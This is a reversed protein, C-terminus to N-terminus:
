HMACSSGYAGMLSPMDLVLAIQGDGTITAGSFGPVANLIKSLPKIVVEEQGIIQDVVLCIHDSGMQIVLVKHEIKPGDFNGTRVLWPYLYFLPLTQDRVRIVHQGDVVNIQDLAMNFTEYVNNLPLAFQQSSLQIMLTPLIALTLPLYITIVSGEGLKSDIEINGNLENIRTKVVDMGVGRGSVDSIESKTSFGPAFILNFADKDSLKSADHESMMGNEAAKKRFVKADMGKGDDSVTLLIQDGEQKASLTVTGQRPKGSAYREDPSEIGHDASNRVLHILPDALAEVLSKDLDTNEGILELNIDKNLKKALDRIVRPFRSFVKKIPQMRTKMVSAQLDSTVLELTTIAEEVHEHGVIHKLTSLRNKVLVLEGVLNMIDDLRETDVRVSSDKQVSSKKSQKKEKRTKQIQTSADNINGNIHESEIAKAKVSEAAKSPMSGPGKNKGHMQDLVADFEDDTILGNNATVVSNQAVNTTSDESLLKHKGKGHIEDLLNDFEDDTILDNKQTNGTEPNTKGSNTTSNQKANLANERMQEFEDDMSIVENTTAIKETVAQTIEPTIEPTKQVPKDTNLYSDLNQLLEPSASELEESERISEFMDGLVDLVQFIIDILGANVEIEHKRLLDFVDEARHCVEVMQTLKMFGAGGKITHFARFIANLLDEDQANNELETLQDNLLDYLEGAEVLFDQLIEDDINM